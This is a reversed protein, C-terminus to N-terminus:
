YNLMVGLVRQNENGLPAIQEGGACLPNRGGGPLTKTILKQDSSIVLVRVGKLPIEDGPKVITRKGATATTYSDLWQQNEKEITDGHDYFKGMPIMKSLAALGGVHDAHFHSIVVYDIKKLGAKQAAAYIRKADRDGVTWGTDILFSEGSPSVMLTAAGGEVDIWYIDLSRSQAHLNGSPVLLLALLLLLLMIDEQIQRGTGAQFSNRQRRLTSPPPTSTNWSSASAMSGSENTMGTFACLTQTVPQRDSRM